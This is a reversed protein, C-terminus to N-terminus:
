GCVCCIRIMISCNGCDNYFSLMGESRVVNKGYSRKTPKATSKGLVIVRAEGRFLPPPVASIIKQSATCYESLGVKVIRFSNRATVTPITLAESAKINASRDIEIGKSGCWGEWSRVIGQEAGGCKGKFSRETPKATGKGHVIVRAEGRFLPPPVASIIKQSATCYESLGVKVIRFSNRATVTPITLAESAKINASRDIEIGKSGCWGKWFRM